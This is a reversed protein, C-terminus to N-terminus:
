VKVLHWFAITPPYPVDSSSDIAVGDTEGFVEFAAREAIGSGVSLDTTGGSGPSDKTAQSIWRGRVNQNEAGLVEWGPNFTLAEALTDFAVAKIDGPTGSVTRWQSREWWILTAITTDYYQQLDVPNAPRNATTGSRVISNFPVWLAGNWFYWGVIEGFGPSAETSDKETKLWLPPDVDDPVSAQVFFWSKESDEINLPVYRKLDEDFVYWRDGNKLWPGVNSTPEIDGIYIFNTGNPSVIKMRRVAEAFFEQPTGRFTPPLGSMEILLNTDRLAM